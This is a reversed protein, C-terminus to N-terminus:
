SAFAMDACRVGFATISQVPAAFAFPMFADDGGRAARRVERPTTAACVV